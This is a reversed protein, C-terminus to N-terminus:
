RRQTGEWQSTSVPAATELLEQQLPASAHGGAQLHAIQGDQQQVLLRLEQLQCQLRCLEKQSGDDAQM